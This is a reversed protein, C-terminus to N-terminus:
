SLWRLVPNIADESVKIFDNMIKLKTDADVTMITAHQKHYEGSAKGLEFAMFSIEERTCTRIIAQLLEPPQNVITDILFEKRDQNM